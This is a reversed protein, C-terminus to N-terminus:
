NNKSLKEDYDKILNFVIQSSILVPPMGVGPNTHHGVYFLNKIKSSFNKPRFIATQFFTHAIGFASGLTSNYDKLFDKAQFIKKIVIKKEINEINNLQAFKKVIKKYFKEVNKKNLFLGPPMPVLIMVSHHNKPALSYDTKSPIHWYFSPNKPISKKNYVNKFHNEWNDTFFLNHHQSKILNDKIGFYILFASPSFIKKQWYKKNYTQYKKPIIKTEFFPYDANVVFFDADYNNKNTIIEKIKNKEIKLKIVEENTKIIVKNELCIKKLAEIVKYIGGKPYYIGLNFDAHAVLQYFAPTNYPSGGLFVTTYELIKQLKKNKIIKKIYDHLSQFLNFRLLNFIISPKLLTTIKKYDQYVLEKMAQKYIFESKKLIKELKKDGNKELQKFIKKNKEINSDIDIVNNDEFFVRYHNKLKILHYFDSTKKNFLSFYNDFVEPMMYWSPGMDFYFNKLKLFRARGGIIKNKEILITKYGNKALLSSTALGGIGGGIVIATKKM